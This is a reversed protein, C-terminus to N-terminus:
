PEDITVIPNSFYVPHQSAHGFAYMVMVLCPSFSLNTGGPTYGALSGGYTDVIYHGYTPTSTDITFKVYHPMIVTSSVFYTSPITYVTTYTAPTYPTTRVALTKNPPDIVFLMPYLVTGSYYYFGVAAKSAQASDPSYFGIICEVGYKGTYLIPLYKVLGYMTTTTTGPTIKIGLASSFAALPALEYVGPSGIVPVYGGLGKTHDDYWLVRGKREMTSKAGLRAALEGMDTVFQGYGSPNNGYDNTGRPM